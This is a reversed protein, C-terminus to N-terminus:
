SSPAPNTQAPSMGQGGPQSLAEEVQERLAGEFRAAFRGDLLRARIRWRQADSADRVLTTGGGPAVWPSVRVAELLLQRVQSAPREAQVRVDMEHAVFRAGEVVTADLLQRNPVIVRRGQNDRIEIARFGVHEVVGGFGPGELWAGEHIRREAWLSIGAIADPLLDRVTIYGLALAAGAVAFPITWSLWQPVLAGAAGLGFVVAVLRLLSQLAWTARPLLGEPELGNRLRATMEALLLLVLTITLLGLGGLFSQVPLEALRFIEQM